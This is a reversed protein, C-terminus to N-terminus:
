INYVRISCYINMYMYLHISYINYVQLERNQVQLALKLENDADKKSTYTLSLLRQFTDPSPSQSAIHHLNYAEKCEPCSLNGNQDLCTGVAGPQSYIYVTHYCIHTHAPIILYSAYPLHILIIYVYIHTHM